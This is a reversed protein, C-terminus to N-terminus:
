MASFLHSITHRIKFVGTGAAHFAVRIYAVVLM